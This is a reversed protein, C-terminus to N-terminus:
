RRAGLQYGLSACAGIVTSGVAVRLWRREPWRRELWSTLAVSGATGVASGAFAGLVAADSPPTREGLQGAEYAGLGGLATAGVVGGVFGAWHAFVLVGSALQPMGPAGNVEDNWPGPIMEDILLQPVLAGLTGGLMVYGARADAHVASAGLTGVLVAGAVLGAETLVSARLRASRERATRTAVRHAHELLAPSYAVRWRGAGRMYLLSDFAVSDGSVWAWPRTALEREERYWAPTPIPEDTLVNGDLDLEVLRPAELM